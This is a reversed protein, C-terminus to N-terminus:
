QGTRQWIEEPAVVRRRNAAVVRLRVRACRGICRVGIILACPMRAAGVVGGSQERTARCKTRECVTPAHHLGIEGCGRRDSQTTGM